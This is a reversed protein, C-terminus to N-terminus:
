PAPVPGEEEAGETEIVSRHPVDPVTELGGWRQPRTWAGARGGLGACSNIHKEAELKVREMM